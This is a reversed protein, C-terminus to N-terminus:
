VENGWSDWGDRKTRAFIEIKPLNPYMREIIEYMKGPKKSHETRPESIVSPSLTSPDPVIATGKKAILINEHQQRTYYGMGIKQKDWIMSTLFIFGWSSIVKLGNELLSPPVWLFLMADPTTVDQIGLSCIDEITMTPYQEEIERSVSIMHQYQWPPDAYIIPYKKQPLPAEVNSLEILREDREARRVKAKESRYESTARSVINGIEEENSELIEKLVKYSTPVEKSVNTLLENEVRHARQEITHPKVEVEFLKLIQAAVEKGILYKSKGEELGREIEQEVWIQCAENLAKM